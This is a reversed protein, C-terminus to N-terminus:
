KIEKVSLIGLITGCTVGFLNIMMDGLMMARGPSVSQIGEDFAAVVMCTFLTLLIASKQYNQTVIFARYILLALILHVGFHALKRVLVHFTSYDVSIGVSEILHSFSQALWGSVSASDKGSQMSLYMTLCLWILALIWRIIRKRAMNVGGKYHELKQEM